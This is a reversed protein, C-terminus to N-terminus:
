PGMQWRPREACVGVGELQQAAQRLVAEQQALQQERAAVAAERRTLAAERAVFPCHRKHPAAASLAPAEACADRKRPAPERPAIPCARVRRDAATEDDLHRKMGNLARWNVERVDHLPRALPCDPHYTVCTDRLCTMIGATRLSHVPAALLRAYFLGELGQLPHEWREGLYTITLQKKQLQQLTALFKLCIM